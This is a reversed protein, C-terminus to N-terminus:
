RGVTKHHQAHGVLGGVVQAGLGGLDQAGGVNLLATVTVMELCHRGGGAEQRASKVARGGSAQLGGGHHGSLALGEGGVAVAADANLKAPLTAGRGQGTAQDCRACGGTGGRAMGWAVGAAAGPHAHGLAHGAGIPAGHEGGAGAGLHQHFKHIAVNVAGDHHALQVVALM